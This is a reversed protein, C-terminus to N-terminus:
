GQFSNRKSDVIERLGNELSVGPSYDLAKKALSIDAYSDKIDGPREPKLEPGLNKADYLDIVTRALEDVRTPKGTGCNFVTSIGDDHYVILLITSV